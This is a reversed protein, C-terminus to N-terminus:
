SVSRTPQCRISCTTSPSIVSSAQRLCCSLAVAFIPFPNTSEKEQCCDRLFLLLMYSAAAVSGAWRLEMRCPCPGLAGLWDKYEAIYETILGNMSHHYIFRFNRVNSIAIKSM